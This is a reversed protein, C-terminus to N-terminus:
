GGIKLLHKAISHISVPQGMGEIYVIGMVIKADPFGYKHLITEMMQSDEDSCVNTDALRKLFDIVKEGTQQEAM